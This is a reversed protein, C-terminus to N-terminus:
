FIVTSDLITKLGARVDQRFEKWSVVGEVVIKGEVWQAMFQQFMLLRNARARKPNAQIKVSWKKLLFFGNEQLAPIGKDLAFTVLM